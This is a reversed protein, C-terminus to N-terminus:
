SYYLIIKLNVLCNNIAKNLKLLDTAVLYSVFWTHNPRSKNIYIM